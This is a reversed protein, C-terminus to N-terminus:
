MLNKQAVMDKMKLNEMTIMKKIIDVKVITKMREEPIMIIMMKKISITTAVEKIIIETVEQTIIEIEAQIIIEIVVQITTEIVALIITDIGRMMNEIDVEEETIMTVEKIIINTMIDEIMRKETIIDEIMMAKLNEIIKEKQNKKKKRPIKMIQHNERTKKIMIEEKKRIM